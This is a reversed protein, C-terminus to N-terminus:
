LFSNVSRTQRVDLKHALSGEKWDLPSTEQDPVVTVSTAAEAKVKFPAPQSSINSDARIPTPRVKHGVRLGLVAPRKGGIRRQKRRQRKGPRVVPRAAM